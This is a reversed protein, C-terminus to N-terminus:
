RGGKGQKLSDWPDPIFSIRNNLFDRFEGHAEAAGREEAPMLLGELRKPLGYEETILGFL